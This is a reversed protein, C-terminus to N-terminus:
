VSAKQQIESTIIHQMDEDPLQEMVEALFAQLLLNRAVQPSLGRAQLYWLAEANIQGITSGHNCSVDDTYIELQPKSFIRADSSLLMNKNSQHALTKNAGKAVYVMGTFYGKGNDKALGRYNENTQCNPVAHNVHTYIEFQEEAAPFFLGYMNTTANEGAKEVYINTRVYEGQLQLTYLNVESDALQYVHNAHMIKSASNLKQMCVYQMHVQAGVYMNTAYNGLTTANPLSCQIEIFEVATHKVDFHLLQQAFTQAGSIASVVVIKKNDAKTTLMYGMKCFAFTIYDFVQNPKTMYECPVSQICEVADANIHSFQPQLVGNELVILADYTLGAIKEQVFADTIVSSPACEFTESFWHTYDYSQWNEAKKAPPEVLMKLADCSTCTQKLSQVYESITLKM